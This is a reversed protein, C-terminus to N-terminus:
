AVRCLTAGADAAGGAAGQAAAAAAGHDGRGCQGRLYDHLIDGLLSRRERWYAGRFEPLHKWRFLSARSVGALRAADAYTGRSLQALALAQAARVVMCRPRAGHGRSM